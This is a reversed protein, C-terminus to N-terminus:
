RAVLDRYGRDALLDHHAGARCGSPGLFIVRDCRSLWAPSSTIVLTTHHRRLDRVRAAIADETAADVATTPDHLVLTPADAALLCALAVRQRQGGSLTEGRDGVQTDAGRPVADIVQDAFAAQAARTVAPGDTAIRALNDAISGPLVATDHHGVLLRGRLEALPIATLPRCDLEITGGVPDSERALLDAIRVALAPDGCVIGTMLGPPIGATLRLDRGLDVESFELSGGSNPAATWSGPERVPDVVAPDMILVERIREASALAQAYAASAGSAVQMPGIVFAALGLASILGGLGLRGTLALWGGAGTILALYLGTLATGVATLTAQASVVHLSARASSQSVRRYQDAANRQAGIGQLVRLGHIVDEAFTTARARRAQETTSRRRVLRSVVSQVVLLAITGVVIIVALVVSFRLLMITSACLVVVAAIATALMGAYAGVRNADSAARSLLDGPALGVGGGPRLVREALWLRVRHGTHQKARMSARAGFRYSLSLFGFDAALIILWLAISRGSGHDVAHSIASGIIVPVLSEGLQHTSYLTSAVILDRRRTRLAGWLLSRASGAALPSRAQLSERRETTLVSSSM